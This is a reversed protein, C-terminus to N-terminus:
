SVARLRELRAPPAGYCPDAVSLTSVTGADDVSCSCSEYV